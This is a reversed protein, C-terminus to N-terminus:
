SEYLFLYIGMKRREKKLYQVHRLSLCFFSFREGLCPNRRIEQHLKVKQNEPVGRGDM